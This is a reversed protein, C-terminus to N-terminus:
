PEIISGPRNARSVVMTFRCSDGRGKRIPRAVTMDGDDGGRQAELPFLLLQRTERMAVLSHHGPRAYIGFEIGPMRFAFNKLTPGPDRIQFMSGSPPPLINDYYVTCLVGHATSPVRYVIARELEIPCYGSLGGPWLLGCSGNARSSGGTYYRRRFFVNASIYILYHFEVPLRIHGPALMVQCKSVRTGIGTGIGIMIGIKTAWETPADYLTNISTTTQLTLNPSQQSCVAHRPSLTTSGRYELSPRASLQAAAKLGRARVALDWRTRHVSYIQSADFRPCKSAHAYLRDCHFEPIASWGAGAQRISNDSQSHARRTDGWDGSHDGSDGPTRHAMRLVRFGAGVTWLRKPCSEIASRLLSSDTPELIRVARSPFQGCSALVDSAIRNGAWLFESSKPLVQAPRPQQSPHPPIPHPQPTYGWVPCFCVRKQGSASM